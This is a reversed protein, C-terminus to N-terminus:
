PGIASGRRSEFEDLYLTGRAGLKVSLAGLRVFDVSHANNEEVVTTPAATGDITMTLWGPRGFGGARKWDIEVVHPGDSIPVFPTDLQSGDARRLRGRLSYVGSQRRLVVAALRRTPNEEFAIFVRTRLRGQAEGPDFGNTDFYFRARYREEDAPSDDQVYLGATDDVVARLGATSLKMAAATSVGLDGGDTNAASWRDLTGADFGDRFIVDPAFRQGFVGHSSGDQELSNWVAVFGRPGLALDPGSQHNTTYANLRFEPGDPAGADDYRRAFIGQDDGDQGASQWVVVFHGDPEYLVRAATQQGTTYSNVIFEGSRPAGAADFRRGVVAYGSGDQGFSDWVVVFNGEVDTSVAPRHKIGTAFTSVPFEGGVPAGMPDYLQAVMFTDAGGRYMEWVVVLSGTSAVAVSPAGSVTSYTNVRFPDGLPTGGAAYRRAFIGGGGPGLGVWAVVFNGSADSTISPNQQGGTTYTNVVFEAGPTGDADFRRGLVGWSSGDQPTANWVVVAEGTASSAVRPQLHGGTTVSNVRFEAVGMPTGEADFRRGFISEAAGTSQWVVVFNGAGDSAVSPAGQSFTTYTNVQFEPGLLVQASVLTPMLALAGALRACKRPM